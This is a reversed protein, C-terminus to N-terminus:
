RHKHRRVRMAVPVPQAEYQQWEPHANWAENVLWGGVIPVVCSATMTQAERLTLPRQVVASGIMPSIAMCGITTASWAGFKTFGNRNIDWDSWHWGGLAFYAATGAAGVGISTATLRPDLEKRPGANAAQCCLVSAAAM